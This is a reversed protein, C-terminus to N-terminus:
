NNKYAKIVEKCNPNAEYFRRNAIEWTSGHVYTEQKVNNTDIFLYYYNSKPHKASKM